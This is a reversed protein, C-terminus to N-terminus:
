RPWTVGRSGENVGSQIDSEQLDPIVGTRNRLGCDPIVETMVIRGVNQYKDADRDSRGGMDLRM